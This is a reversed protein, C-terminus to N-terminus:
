AVQGPITEIRTIKGRRWLFSRLQSQANEYVGVVDSRDNIALAMVTNDLVPHLDHLEGDRWIFAGAERGDIFRFGVLESKNNIDAFNFGTFATGTGLHTLRYTRQQQATAAACVALLALATILSSWIRLTLHRGRVIMHRGLPIKVERSTASSTPGRQMASVMVALPRLLVVLPIHRNTRSM